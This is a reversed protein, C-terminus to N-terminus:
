GGIGQDYFDPEFDEDRIMAGAKKGDLADLERPTFIYKLLMRYPIMAVVFFPFALALVTSKVAWLIALGTLQLFTYLHMKWTRVRRVYSVRPHHKVPKLLLVLRDFFQIGNMSSVGMYLFVGFLVSYPVKKLLPSLLVSLGVLVSVLFASLRQDKVEVISPTDGPAHTTSMVTLSSMHACARVTAACIFPGGFFPAVCNIISLLVIDWHLGGGKKNAKELMLLECIHTEMFLLLYLLIAPVASVFPIWIPFPNDTPWPSIMWGRKSPATVQLGSPVKLKETYIDHVIYDLLVMLVIAIPVGFDGLARRATRGLYHGNRFIRLFYAIFFTGFMLIASLLATNPEVKILEAVVPAETTTLTDNFDPLLSRGERGAFPTTFLPVPTTFLEDTTNGTWLSKDETVNCYTELTRLPHAIFIKVVKKLAEFIFLLSVLSAFIDKTFKTFYKVLISGQFAAVLLAIILTWIGIWVRWPLFDIGMSVSFKFLAEDYLLLPGTSGTIILPMGSFLAFIVGAVCSTILTEPIGILSKTKEGMLGGFAVAGSLAAFYIFITAALTQTNIGDLFDSLYHPFRRKLDCIVGGFLYPVRVLPDDGEKYAKKEEMDKKEKEKKEKDEDKGEKIVEMAEKRSKKRKRMDQIESISLLNKSDWDGPPLVVSEDLFDNIASLLERRDDVKYCVTHFKPNSMLTSLSRGVEHCDVNPSPKPTLFVFIFRVPIPVEMASPMIIGEALRVFATLPEELFDVAGVLTIAGETGEKIRMMIGSKKPQNAMRYLDAFSATTPYGSSMGEEMSVVLHDGQKANAYGNFDGSSGLNGGSNVTGITSWAKSMSRSKDEANLLNSFSTRSLNRRLGGLKFTPDVHKHRYLLIRLVEGKLEDNLLGTNNMEEVITYLVNTMDRAEHDLLIIGKELHLRLNLLSHFSLSSIHPKGWREAGEERSEEYKIWRAQEVWEYDLLEDMEVFLDHPSHDFEKITDGYMTEMLKNKKEDEEGGGTAGRISFVTSSNRKSSIKHRSMGHLYDMRHHAMDEIDRNHLLQAEDKDTPMVNSINVTPLLESGRRQRMTLEDETFLTKRQRRRKKHNHKKKKMHHDLKPDLEIEDDTHGLRFKVKDNKEEDDDDFDDDEDDDDDDHSHGTPGPESSTGVSDESFTRPRKAKLAKIPSPPTPGREVSKEKSPERSEEEEEEDEESIHEAHHETIEPLKISDTIIKKPKKSREREKHRDAPDGHFRHYHHHQHHPRHRSMVHHYHPYLEENHGTYMDLAGSITNNKRLGFNDQLARESSSMSRIIRETAPRTLHTEGSKPDEMTVHKKEEGGPHHHHSKKGSTQGKKAAVAGILGGSLAAFAGLAGVDPVSDRKNQGYYSAGEDLNAVEATSASTTLTQLEFREPHFIKECERKLREEDEKGASSAELAVTAAVTSSARVLHKKWDIPKEEKEPNEAM